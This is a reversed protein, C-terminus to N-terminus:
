APVQARAHLTFLKCTQKCGCAQTETFVFCWGHAWIQIHTGSHAYIYLVACTYTLGYIKICSHTYMGALMWVYNCIRTRLHTCVHMCTCRQLKTHIYAHTHMHICRYMCSTHLKLCSDSMALLLQCMCAQMCVKESVAFAPTLVHMCADYSVCMDVTCLDGQMSIQMQRHVRTDGVFRFADIGVILHMSVCVCVCWVCACMWSNTSAFTLHVYRDPIRSGPAYTRVYMCVYMCLGMHANISDHLREKARKDM